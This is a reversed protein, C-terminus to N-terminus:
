AHAVITITNGDYEEYSIPKVNHPLLPAPTGGEVFKTTSTEVRIEDWLGADLFSQHTVAGGEVIM